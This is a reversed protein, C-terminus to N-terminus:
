NAVCWKHIVLFGFAIVYLEGNATPVPIMKIFSRWVVKMLIRVVLWVFMVM